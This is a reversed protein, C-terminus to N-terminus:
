GSKYCTLKNDGLHLEIFLIYKKGAIARIVIIETICIEQLLPPEEYLLVVGGGGEPLVPTSIVMCFIAKEGLDFVTALPM